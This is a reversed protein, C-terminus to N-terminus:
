YNSTFLCGGLLSTVILIPECMLSACPNQMGISISGLLSSIAEIDM